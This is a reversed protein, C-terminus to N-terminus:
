ITPSVPLILASPHDRDHYITQDAAQLTTATAPPEGTGPNRNWRPHAGSAVHLRLRHGRRFRHATPWLPIVVRRPGAPETGGDGPSLRVLGDCVNLSRGDPWVDCLRGLFDTYPQSSQVYLELQPAGVVELDAALPATTYTLVDPRAELPRQDRPGGTLLLPGGLVPTPDAPDYRYCALSAGAPPPEPQLTGGGHLYYLSRTTPPPWADLDRWKGAGMVYLRVPRTRLWVPAGKLHADCWALTERLAALAGRGDTHWWPGITLYPARGGARLAAYDALLERLFIDYWGGILHVPAEVQAASARHDSRQWYPDDPAPHDLWSRYFPVPRGVAVADAEGVPLHAFAAELRREMGAPALSRLRAWLSLRAAGELVDLATIWRLALDLGFANDLHVLTYFHAATAHPVLAHVRGPAAAAAWQAYGLYSEGAM